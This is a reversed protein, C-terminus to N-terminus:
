EEKSIQQKIIMSCEGRFNDVRDNIIIKKNNILNNEIKNNIRKNM